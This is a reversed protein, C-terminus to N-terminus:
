KFIGKKRTKEPTGPKNLGANHILTELKRKKEELEARQRELAERMEKHRAYLEEESQKLKAEKEQVKQQFVLKMDNEMKALRQEHLIRQEELSAAPNIEKSFIEQERGMARLKQTRYSEYLALDTTRKLEEMHTRILMQRLKVFDNHDENDVEIIGWPYARGRVKRGGATAVEKNSGVVAFPIKTAIESTEAITEQDDDEYTPPRYIDIKHFNIDDLIRDKFVRIEDETLTDSKAVIPILNVRPALRRMFEIDLQRLSHGTPPIFYLCAHIRNDVIKSRNIRLEQELFADYRAEVNQLIPKWSDENNIFDGFGPTDIVTLRLQVGNEEIEASIQQIDLSKQLDTTIPVRKEPYLTTNFLTNVLTSKGLGSEGVVM